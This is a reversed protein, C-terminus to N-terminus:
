RTARGVLLAGMARGFPLPIRQNSARLREGLATSLVVIMLV